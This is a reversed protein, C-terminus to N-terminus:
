GPSRTGLLLSIPRKNSLVLSIHFEWPEAYKRSLRLCTHLLFLGAPGHVGWKVADSAPATGALCGSPQGAHAGCLGDARMGKMSKEM